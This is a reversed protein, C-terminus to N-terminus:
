LLYIGERVEQVVMRSLPGSEQEVSLPSEWTYRTLTAFASISVCTFVQVPIIVFWWRKKFGLPFLKAYILFLSHISKHALNIKAKRELYSHRFRETDIYSYFKYRYRYICM